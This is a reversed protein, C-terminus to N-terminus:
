QERLFAAAERGMEGLALLVARQEARRQADADTLDQEQKQTLYERTVVTTFPIAGTRVDLLVAECTAYAKIQDSRFLRYNQYLDGSVRFVLLADAQLRVAVERLVPVSPQEPVLLSPLLEVESVGSPLLRVRLTDLYSERASVEEETVAYYRYARALSRSPAQLLAISAGEPIEVRSDLLRTIAAEDLGSGDGSFLSFAGPTDAPPAALREATIPATCGVVLSLL